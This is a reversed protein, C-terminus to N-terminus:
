RRRYMWRFMLAVVLLVSVPVVVVSVHGAVMMRRFTRADNLRPFPEDPVPADLFECLPEWGEKVDYVLLKEPPVKAKVEEIHREFVSVAHGREEFRGDFTGRWILDNVMRGTRKMRPAVLGALAFFPSGSNPDSANYITKMTSEHWRDPDRVTLIVKAGPYAGMLEEYFSCAPWDVASGYNRFFEDWKVSEGGVAREWFSGHSPHKFLETMHYCPGFGLRELAAKLSSTGTRGFGAGIVKM